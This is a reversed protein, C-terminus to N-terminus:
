IEFNEPFDVPSYDTLEEGIPLNGNLTQLEKLKNNRETEILRM